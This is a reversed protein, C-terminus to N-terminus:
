LALHNKHARHVHTRVQLSYDSTVRQARPTARFNYDRRVNRLTEWPADEGLSEVRQESIEM